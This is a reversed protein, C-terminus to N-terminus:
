KFRFVLVDDTSVDGEVKELFSKVLIHAPVDIELTNDNKLWRGNDTHGGNYRVKVDGNRVLELELEAGEATNFRIIM